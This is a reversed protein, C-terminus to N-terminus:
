SLWKDVSDAVIEVGLKKRWHPFCVIVFYTDLLLFSLPNSILATEVRVVSRESWEATQWGVPMKKNKIINSLFCHLETFCNDKWLFIFQFVVNNVDTDLYRCESGYLQTVNKTTAMDHKIPVERTTWITFFQGAIWSVWAWDQTPSFRGKELFPFVGWEPIRAQLSEYVSSRPPSRNTWPTVFLWVPSCSCNWMVKM